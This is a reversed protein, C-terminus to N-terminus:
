AVSLYTLFFAVEPFEGRVLSRVRNGFPPARLKLRLSFHCFFAWGCARGSGHLVCACMVHAYTYVPPM